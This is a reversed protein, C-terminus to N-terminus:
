GSKFLDERIPLFDTPNIDHTGSPLVAKIALPKGELGPLDEMLDIVKPPKMPIKGETLIMVVKPKLRRERNITAVVGISGTTMEVLSGIPYIGMCQIFQEILKPDFDTNRWEYMKKLAGHSSMGQHYARDSTIADYCDVIGGIKGFHTIEAEKLGRAYGAGSSREHHYRAVDIAVTHVGSTAELIKVGEPVHSRMIDFEQETLRGPKNIIDNPVKMKGVDHLLAGLGLLNLQEEDFGLHRGFALALISVRLSHLATYEDKVKLQSLCVMADPNRIISQVMNGVAKKAGETDISKGLRVDDLISRIVNRTKVTTESAVELEEELSSKDQYKPPRSASSAVAAKMEQELRRSTDAESEQSMLDIHWSGLKDGDSKDHGASVDIDLGQETDIFVYECHKTLKTIDEDDMVEFGQFLFSTEIWPRDLELIYMGIKIASVPIKKRM